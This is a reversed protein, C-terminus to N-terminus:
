YRRASLLAVRQTTSRVRVRAATALGPVWVIEGACAVVPTAGRAARPLRRDTFLDALTKSGGLGIPRLRDGDRPARVTLQELDLEDADLVAISGDARLHSLAQECGLQRLECTLAWDGFGATGPVALAVEGPAAPLARREFRLRGYAVVAVVGAGIDLEGSGGGSALALLEGVRAGVGPLAVGGAREALRVVVLRSLAPALEGLEVLPLTTRGALVSDVLDDLVAAEDRLLAASRLLNAEAAPHVRRLQELLGHRVRGRAFRQDSNTADERWALDRALCYAATQERSCELLPRILRGDRPSMGLLARRGPSAALRYLITEAQDSATHGTVILADQALALEAAERYRVERAWAQLNGHSPAAGARHVACRVGVRQCLDRVHFEDGDSDAGRLGYNVHLVTLADAGALALLLDLLCVSDRGGSVLAVYREGPAILGGQVVRKRVRDVASGPPESM